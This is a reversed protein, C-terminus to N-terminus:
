RESYVLLGYEEGSNSRKRIRHTRFKSGNGPRKIKWIVPAHPPFFVTTGYRMSLAWTFMVPVSRYLHPHISGYLDGSQAVGEGWHFGTRHYKLFLNAMQKQHDLHRQVNVHDQVRKSPREGPNTWGFLLQTVIAPPLRCMPKPELYGTCTKDLVATKRNLMDPIFPRITEKLLVGAGARYWM